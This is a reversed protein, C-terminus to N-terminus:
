IPHNDRLETWGDLGKESPEYDQLYQQRQECRKTKGLRQLGLLWEVFVGAPPSFKVVGRAFWKAPRHDLQDRSAARGRLTGLRVAAEREVLELRKVVLEKHGHIAM